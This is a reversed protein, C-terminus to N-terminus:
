LMENQKSKYSSEYGEPEKTSVPQKKQKEKDALEYLKKSTKQTLGNIAM